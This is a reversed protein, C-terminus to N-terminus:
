VNQLFGIEVVIFRIAIVDTESIRVSDANTM